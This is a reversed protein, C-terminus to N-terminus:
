RQLRLRHYLIHILSKQLEGLKTWDTIVIISSGEMDHYTVKLNALSAQACLRAIFPRGLIGRLTNCWPIVLFHLIVKREHEGEGVESTMNTIWQPLTISYNFALLGGGNYHSPDVPQICLLGVTDVYLINCSNDGDVLVRTLNKILSPSKSFWLFILTQFGM